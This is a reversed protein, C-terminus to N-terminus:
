VTSDGRFESGMDMRGSLQIRLIASSCPMIEGNVSLRLHLSQPDAVADASLICPGVPCFTDHWKGHLWDFFKDKDRAQRGPNIQFQRDSIDNCVTYGAVYRLALLSRDAPPLRALAAALDLDQTRAAPDPHVNAAGRPDADM